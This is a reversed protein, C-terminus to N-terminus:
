SRVPKGDKAFFTKGHWSERAPVEWEGNRLAGVTQITNNFVVTDPTVEGGAALERFGGRDIRHVTSGQRYWVPANDTMTVGLHGELGRIQRVMADISCGSAGAAREDVAVFLFQDYRLERGATLPTGHASWGALFEDVARLIAERAVPSLAGDAAFTWLRAHDPLQDFPAIPM